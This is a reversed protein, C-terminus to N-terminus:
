LSALRCRIEQLRIATRDTELAIQAFVTPDPPTILSLGCGSQLAEFCEAFTEALNARQRELDKWHASLRAEEAHLKKCEAERWRRHRCEVRRAIDHCDDEFNTPPYCYPAEWTSRLLYETMEHAITDAILASDEDWRVTIASDIVAGRTKSNVDEVYLYLQHREVTDHWQQVSQAGFGLLSCVRDAIEDQWDM